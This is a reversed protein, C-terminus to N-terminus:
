TESRSQNRELDKRQKSIEKLEKELYNIRSLKQERTLEKNRKTERGIETAPVVSPTFVETLNEQKQELRDIKKNDANTFYEPRAIIMREPHALQWAELDYDYPRLEDQIAKCKADTGHSSCEIDSYGIRNFGFRARKTSEALSMPLYELGENVDTAEVCIENNDRLSSPLEGFKSKYEEKAKALPEELKQIEYDTYTPHGEKRLRKAMNLQQQLRKIKEELAQKEQEKNEEKSQKIPRGLHDVTPKDGGEFHYRYENELRELEKEAQTIWGPPNSPDKRLRNIEKRKNIIEEQLKEQETM